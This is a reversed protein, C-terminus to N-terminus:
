WRVPELPYGRNFSFGFSVHPGSMLNLDESAPFWLGRWGIEINVKSRRAIDVSSGILGFAHFGILRESQWEGLEYQDTGLTSIGPGIRIYLDPHGLFNLAPEIGNNDESRITAKYGYTLSTLMKTRFNLASNPEMMGLMLSFFSRSEAMTYILELGLGGDIYSIQTSLSQDPDGWFATDNRPPLADPYLIIDNTSSDKKSSLITDAAVGKQEAHTEFPNLFLGAVLFILSLYKTKLM